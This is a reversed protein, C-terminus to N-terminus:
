LTAANRRALCSLSCCTKWSAPCQKKTSGTCAGQMCFPIQTCSGPRIPVVSASPSDATGGAEHSTDHLGAQRPIYRGPRSARKRDSPDRCGQPFRGQAWHRHPSRPSRQQQNQGASPKRGPFFGAKQGPPVPTTHAVPLLRTGGSALAWYRAYTKEHLFAASGISNTFGQRLRCPKETQLLLFFAAGAQYESLHRM